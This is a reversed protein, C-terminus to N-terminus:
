ETAPLDNEPVPRDDFVNMSEVVTVGASRAMRLCKGCRPNRTDTEVWASAKGAGCLSEDTDQRVLHTVPSPAKRRSGVYRDGALADWHVLM